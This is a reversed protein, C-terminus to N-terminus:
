SRPQKTRDIVVAQEDSAIAARSAAVIDAHTLVSRRGEIRALFDAGIRVPPEFCPIRRAEARHQVLIFLSERPAVLPDGELRLEASGETGTVFLRCDGWTWSKDPTHWDAYLQVAVGGDTVGQLVATDYFDPYEPLINKTMVARSEAWEEGTLWRVLDFDHIFLDIILGGNLARSFHWQPRAPANLRHPKRMTIGVIRGLEGRDIMGKLTYLAGRFRETLLMGVQIRGRGIVAELRELAARNTVAPKDVMVHKGRSECLEIIDIKERNIAACGVLDVEDGLLVERDAVRPIGYQRAIRDALVDNAPEYLGVCRHGAALMEGIFLGIHPHECGIISFTYGM